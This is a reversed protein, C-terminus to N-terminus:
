IVVTGGEPEADVKVQAQGLTVRELIRTASDLTELDAQSLAEHESSELIWHQLDGMLQTSLQLYQRATM